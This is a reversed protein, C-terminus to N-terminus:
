TDSEGYCIILSRHSFLGKGVALRFCFMLSLNPGDGSIRTSNLIPAPLALMLIFGEFISRPRNEAAFFVLSSHM